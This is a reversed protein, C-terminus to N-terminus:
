AAVQYGAQDLPTCHCPCDCSEHALMPQEHHGEACAMCIPVPSQDAVAQIASPQPRAFQGRHLNMM